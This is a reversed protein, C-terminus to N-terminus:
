SFTIACSFPPTRANVAGWALLHTKRGRVSYTVLAMGKSNVALHIKSANRAILQSANATASFGLM